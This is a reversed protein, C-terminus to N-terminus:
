FYLFRKLHYENSSLGIQQYGFEQSGPKHGWISLEVRLEDPGVVRYKAVEADEVAELSRVLLVGPVLTREQRVDIYEGGAAGGYLVRYIAVQYSGMEIRSLQEFGRDAGDRTIDGVYLITMGLGILSYLLVPVLLLFGVATQWWKRFAFAFLACLWPLLFSPLLALYNARSSSFTLVPNFFNWQALQFCVLLVLITIAPHNRTKQRFSARLPSTALAPRPLHVAESVLELRGKGEDLSRGV